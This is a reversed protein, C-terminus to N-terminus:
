LRAAVLDAFRGANEPVIDLYLGPEILELESVAWCGQWRMMDVRAYPLDADLRAAAVRVAVEALARQETGLDVPLTRGGYMEHVRIEDGVPTKDVQCVAAGELVFVSTEGTTRVSEVLPQVVWPSETLGSLRWDTVSDAVVVGVGAAGIRPKIVATGWLDVAEQLGPVLNADDLLRTPVVGVDDALETLYAKDANWAFVDSGNLLTAEKEVSRSWALFEECRRQYDWPSRVAVVDAAKWDVSPDDWVVWRADIGRDTFAPVLVEGGPEGDPMLAFTVLLVCSV